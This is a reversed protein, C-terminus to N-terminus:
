IRGEPINNSTSDASHPIEIYQKTVEILEGM